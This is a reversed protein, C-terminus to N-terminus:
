TNVQSKTAKALKHRKVKHILVQDILTTVQSALRQFEPKLHDTNM